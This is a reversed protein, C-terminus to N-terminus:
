VNVVSISNPTWPSHGIGYRFERSALIHYVRTGVFFNFTLTVQYICVLTREAQQLLVIRGAWGTEQQWSGGLTISRSLQCRIWQVLLVADCFGHVDLAKLTVAPLYSACIWCCRLSRSCRHPVSCCSKICEDCAWSVVADRSVKV